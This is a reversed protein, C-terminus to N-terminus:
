HNFRGGQDLELEGEFPIFIENGNVFTIDFGKDTPEIASIHGYEPSYDGVAMEEVPISLM